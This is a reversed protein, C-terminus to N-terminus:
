KTETKKAMKTKRASVRRVKKEKKVEVKELEGKKILAKKIKNRLTKAKDTLKAFRFNVLFADLSGYKTITRLTKSAVTLTINNGLADSKFAKKLLNPIFKRNTRRISHSVNHGSMPGVGTLDCRRSM